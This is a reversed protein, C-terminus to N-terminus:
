FCSLAFQLQSQTLPGSPFLLGQDSWDLLRLEIAWYLADGAWPSCGEYDNCAALNSLSGVDWDKWAAYRRLLAAAEERTIFREPAFRDNGVGQILGEDYAWAASASCDDDHGIDIFHTNAEYPFGGSTEWLAILMDGRTVYEASANASVPLLVLLFLLAIGKKM